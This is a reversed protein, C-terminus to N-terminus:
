RLIASIGGWQNDLLQYAQYKDVLPLAAVRDFIAQTITDEEQSLNLERM